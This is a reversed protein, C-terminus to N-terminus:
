PQERDQFSWGNLWDRRFLFKWWKYPNASPTAGNERAVQGEEFVFGNRFVAM